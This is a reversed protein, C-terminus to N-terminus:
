SRGAPDCAQWFNLGLSSIRVTRRRIGTRRVSGVAARVTADALLIEYQTSLSSAAGGTDALGFAILRTVYGPVHDPLSVGAVDGVTSANRLLTGSARGLHSREVVDILPFPGDHALVSLIRAEDPALQRLILTYLYDRAGAHDLAASRNLLEAMGVRLPESPEAATVARAESYHPATHSTQTLTTLYPASSSDLRRRLEGLARQEVSHWRQEAAGVGPLHKRLAYGVRAARSVLGGARRALHQSKM